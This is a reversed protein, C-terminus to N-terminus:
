RPTAMRQSKLSITRTCRCPRSRCWAGDHLECGNPWASCRYFSGGEFTQGAEDARAWREEGILALTANTQPDLDIVLVRKQKMFALTDALQVTATTKAVGGKLNIFSLVVPAM